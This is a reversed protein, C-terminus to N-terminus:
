GSPSARGNAIGITEVILCTVDLTTVVENSIVCEIM